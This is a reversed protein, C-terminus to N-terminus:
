DLWDAIAEVGERQAEGGGDSLMTLKLRDRNSFLLKLTVGDGFSAELLRARTIFTPVGNPESHGDVPLVILRRDTAALAVLRGKLLAAQNAAAIGYLEEGPELLMRLHAAVRTQFESM